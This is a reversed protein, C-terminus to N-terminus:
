TRPRQSHGAYGPRAPILNKIYTLKEKEKLEEELEEEHKATFVMTTYTEKELDKLAEQTMVAILEPGGTNDVGFPMKDTVSAIEYTKQITKSEEKDSEYNVVNITFNDKEKYCTLNGEIKALMLMDVYNILIIENNKIGSLGVKKLYEQMQKENLAIARVNIVYQNDEENFLEKVEQKEEIAKRM